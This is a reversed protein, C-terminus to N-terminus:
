KFLIRERGSDVDRLQVTGDWSAMILIKGDRTFALSSIWFQGPWQFANRQKGTDTDHLKVSNNMGGSALTKGDPSFVLAYVGSAPGTLSLRQQATTVDWLKIEAPGKEGPALGATALSKGDPSFTARYVLDKHARLTVQEQRKPM